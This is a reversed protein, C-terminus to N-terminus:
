PLDRADNLPVRVDPGDSYRVDSRDDSSINTEARKAFFKVMAAFNRRVVSASMEDNPGDGRLSRLRHDKSGLNMPLIALSHREGVDGNPVM